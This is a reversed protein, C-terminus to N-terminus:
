STHNANNKTNMSKCKKKKKTNMEENKRINRTNSSGSFRYDNIQKQIFIVDLIKFRNKKM